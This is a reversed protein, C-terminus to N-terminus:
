APQRFVTTETAVLPYPKMGRFRRVVWKGLLDDVARYRPNDSDDLVLLGGPRLKSIACRVCDVRDTTDSDNGDVVILDFSGDPMEWVASPFAAIPTLRLDSNTAGSSQLRREVEAHWAPDHELSTVRAAREAYWATSAGSGFEFVTWRSEIVRGLYSVAAPVMWPGSSARRTLRRAIEVPLRLWASPPMLEGRETHFRSPRNPGEFLRELPRAM